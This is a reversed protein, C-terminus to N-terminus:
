AFYHQTYSHVHSDKKIQSIDMFIYDNHQGSPLMKLDLDVHIEYALVIYHTSINAGVFADTYFHEFVGRFRSSSIEMEIGLESVAVRRFADIIKEDKFIRGGPVFYYGKAPPNIRKGLLVENSQNYVILDISVLPASNVVTKFIAIDLM